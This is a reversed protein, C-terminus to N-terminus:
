LQAEIFDLAERIGALERIAREADDQWYLALSSHTMDLMWKSSARNHPGRVKIRGGAFEKTTRAM